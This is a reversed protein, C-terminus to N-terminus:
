PKKPRCISLVQQQGLAKLTRLTREAIDRWAKRVADGDSMGDRVHADAQTAIKAVHRLVFTRFPEEWKHTGVGLGQDLADKLIERAAAMGDPGLESGFNQGFVFAMEVIPSEEIPSTQTPDTQTPDTPAPGPRNLDDEM